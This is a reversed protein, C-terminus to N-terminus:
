TIWTIYFRLYMYATLLSAALLVIWLIISKLAKYERKKIVATVKKVVAIIIMVIDAISLVLAAFFACVVTDFRHNTIYWLAVIKNMVADLEMWYSVAVVAAFVLLVAHIIILTLKTKRM